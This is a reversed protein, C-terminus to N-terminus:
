SRLAEFVQRSPAPDVHAGVLLPRGVEVGHAVAAALEDADHVDVGDIGLAAGFRACSLEPLGAGVPRLARREQKIEIQTFSRDLMAVVVLPADTGTLAALETVRMLLSGDGLFTLVPSAGAALAGLAAPIAYGMTSLANSALYHGQEAPDSLLAVLPKSFGADAVLHGSTPFAGLAADVAHPVSLGTGSPDLVGRRVQERHAAVDEPTWTAVTGTRRGALAALTADPDGVIRRSFPAQWETLPDASLAVTEAEFVRPRNYVDFAQPNVMVVLDSRQLLATDLRGNLFTGAFWPCANTVLGKQASSTMIPIHATAALAELTRRTPGGAGPRPRGGVVVAPRRAAALREGLWDLDADLPAPPRRDDRWVAGQGAVREVQGDPGAAELVAVDDPLELWVPGPPTGTAVDLLKGVLADHDMAATARAGWRTVPELLRQLEFGQRVVFPLRDAAHQGSVVVLPIEDMAANLLGNLGNSIGPALSLVVVGPVGSVQADAAAMLVAASENYAARYTLGANELADLFTMHDEGPLGYARTVGSAALATAIRQAVLM